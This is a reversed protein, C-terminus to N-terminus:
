RALEARAEQISGGNLTVAPGSAHHTAGLALIVLGVGVVALSWTGSRRSMEAAATLAGRVTSVLAAALTALLVAWLAIKAAAVSGAMTPLNSTVFDGAAAWDPPGLVVYVSVLQVGTVALRLLVVPRMGTQGAGSV